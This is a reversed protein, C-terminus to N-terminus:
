ISRIELDPLGELKEEPQQIPAEDAHPVCVMLAKPLCEVEVTSRGALEGDILVRQTPETTIRFRKARLYGISQQTAAEGSLASQFLNVSARMADLTGQPAFITLDLLGDDPIVGAPGHALVSTAPAANAVTIAGASVSIKCSNDIELEASFLEVNRLQNLGAFIYALVGLRDKAERNANRITEAELGVGALLVMTQDNCRAADIVRTTGHAIADCAAELETPIDLANAFANATGRGIVGLPISTGLLATAVASVTGDGGAAIVLEAGERVAVQALHEADADPSTEYIELSLHPSLATQITQLDQNRDGQGSVPNFILAATRAM